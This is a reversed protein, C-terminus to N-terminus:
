EREEIEDSYDNTELLESQINQSEMACVDLQIGKDALDEELLMASLQTPFLVTQVRQGFVLEYPAAGTSYM